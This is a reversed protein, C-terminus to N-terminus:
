RMLWDYKDPDFQETGGGSEKWASHKKALTLPTRNRNQAIAVLARQEARCGDCGAVVGRQCSGKLRWHVKCRPIEVPGAAQGPFLEALDGDTAGSIAKAKREGPRTGARFDSM